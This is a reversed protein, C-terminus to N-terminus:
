EKGKPADPQVMKGTDPIHDAQRAASRESAVTPSPTDTWGPCPSPIIDERRLGMPKCREGVFVQGQACTMCSKGSPACLRKDVVAELEKIRAQATALQNILCQKGECVARRCDFLFTDCEWKDPKTALPDSGCKPCKASM